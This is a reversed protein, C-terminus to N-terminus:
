PGSAPEFTLNDFHVRDISFSLPQYVEIRRISSASVSLLREEHVCALSNPEACVGGCPGTEPPPLHEGRDWIGFAEAFGVLAGGTVADYADLRAGAVGVNVALISVLSQPECFTAVIPDDFTPWGDPYLWISWPATADGGFVYCDGILNRVWRTGWDFIVGQAAYHSGVFTFENIADDFEITITGAQGGGPTHVCQEVVPDCTDATCENGDDCDSCGRWIQVRYRARGGEPAEVSIKLWSPDLPLDLSIEAGGVGFDGEEILGSSTHLTYAVQAGPDTSVARVTAVDASIPLWVNYTRQASDFVIQDEGLVKFELASLTTDGPPSCSIGTSTQL